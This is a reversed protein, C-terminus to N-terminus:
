GSQGFTSIDINNGLKEMLDNQKKFCHTPM